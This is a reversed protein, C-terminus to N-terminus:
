YSGVLSEETGALEWYAGLLEEEAGILKEEAGIQFCAFNPRGRLDVFSLGIVRM